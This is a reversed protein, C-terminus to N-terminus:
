GASENILENLRLKLFNNKLPDTNHTVLFITLNKDLNDITKFIKKETEKDLSNTAEDFFLVEADSYLARAIGIRQRQGGSLFMGREGLMFKSNKTSYKIFDPLGASDLSSAVRAYDVRDNPIGFAINESVTGNLLFVSQPVHAVKQRWLRLYDNLSLDVDDVYMKGATPTSLGMLIDLLTSKGCGSQGMIAIRDGKRVKLSINKLAFGEGEEYKFYVNKLEIEKLFLLKVRSNSSPLSRFTQNASFLELIENLLHWTSEIKSWGYFSQQALPLIKQASIALVLLLTVWSTISGGGVLVISVWIVILTLIVGEIVFKPFQSLFINNARAKKLKLDSNAFENLFINQSEALMIDRIGGVGEQIKQIVATSEKSIILANNIVKSRIYVGVLIFYLAFFIIVCMTVVANIQLLVVLVMSGLLLASLTTILPTIIGTIIAEAKISVISILESSNRSQFFSYPMKLIQNYIEVSLKNGMSFLINSNISLSYIRFFTSATLSLAYLASVTIIFNNLSINEVYNLSIFKEYYMNPSILVNIYPVVLGITLIDVISTIVILALCYSMSGKINIIKILTILDNYKKKM